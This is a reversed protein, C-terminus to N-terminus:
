PFTPRRSRSTSRAWSRSGSPTPSRSSSASRSTSCPPPGGASRSCRASSIAARNRPSSARSIASSRRRTTSRTPPSSSTTSPTARLGARLADQVMTRNVGGLGGVGNLTFGFSLQIPPLDFTIILLFSYGPSGDPLKTDIVAIVKVAVTDILTVDLVGAYRGKVPDYSIFGGGEVMGAADIEIGLGTPPKFGLGLNIPGLNGRNFGLDLSVGMREVSISLPGLSGSGIFSVELPLDPQGLTLAVHLSQIDFPGVSLNVGIDFEPSGNGEIFFGYISSWGVDLNFALNVDLPILSALFSDMQSSNIQLVGGIMGAKVIASLQGGSINVGGAMSVTGASIGLGDVVTVLPVPGGGSGAYTLQLLINGSTASAVTSMLNSKLAVRGGPRITAAVGTSVDLSADITLTLNDSLPFSLDTTGLAYPVIALGADAAGPSSPRLVIVSLGVNVPPSSLSRKLSLLLQTSPNTDAAPVDQGVLQSEARRPLARVANPLGFGQLIAGIAVAMGTPDFGASGWGYVDALLQPLDGFLRPVRDWHVIKRVCEAQYISDDRSLPQLEVLGTFLALGVSFMSSCNLAEVTLYDFLRPLFQDKIDTKQLYDAPAAFGAAIGDLGQLLTGVAEALDAYDGALSVGTTGVDIALSLTDLKSLVDSLDLASLGIDSAGPPLEWGLVRLLTLPGDDGALLTSVTGLTQAIRSLVIQLTSAM